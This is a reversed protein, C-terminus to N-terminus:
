TSLGPSPGGPRNLCSTLNKSLTVVMEELGDDGFMPILKRTNPSPGPLERESEDFVVFGDDERACRVLLPVSYKVIGFGCFVVFVSAPFGDFENASSGASSGTVSSRPRWDGRMELSSSCVLGDGFSLGTTYSPNHEEPLRTILICSSSRRLSFPFRKEVFPASSLSGVYEVDKLIAFRVRWSRQPM